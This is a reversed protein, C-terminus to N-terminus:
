GLRVQGLGVRLQREYARPNWRELRNIDVVLCCLFLLLFLNTITEVHLLPIEM